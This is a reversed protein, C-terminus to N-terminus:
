YNETNVIIKFFFTEVVFKINDVEKFINRLEDENIYQDTVYLLPESLLSDAQTQMKSKKNYSNSTITEM